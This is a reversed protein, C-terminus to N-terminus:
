IATQPPAASGAGRPGHSAAGYHRTESPPDLNIRELNM